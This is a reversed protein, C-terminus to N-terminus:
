NSEVNDASEIIVDGAASGSSPSYVASNIFETWIDRISWEAKSYDYIFVVGDELENVYIWHKNETYLFPYDRYYVWGFLRTKVWGDADHPTAFQILDEKNAYLVNMESDFFSIENGLLVSPISSEFKLLIKSVSPATLKGPPVFQFTVPKFGEQDKVVALIVKSAGSQVTSIFTTAKLSFPLLLMYFIFRRM